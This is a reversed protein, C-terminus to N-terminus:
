DPSVATNQSTNTGILNRGFLLNSVTTALMPNLKGASKIPVQLESILDPRNELAGLLVVQDRSASNTLCSELLRLVLPRHGEIALLGLLYARDPPRSNTSLQLIRDAGEPIAGVDSDFAVMVFKEMGPHLAEADQVLRWAEKQGAPGCSRALLQFAAALGAESGSLGLARIEPLVQLANTGVLSLGFLALSQRTPNPLGKSLWDSLSELGIKQAADSLREEISPPRMVERILYPVAVAGLKSIAEQAKRQASQETVAGSDGALDSLWESLKRGDIKPDHPSSWIPWSAVAPIILLFCLVVRLKWAPRRVAQGVDQDAPNTAGDKM